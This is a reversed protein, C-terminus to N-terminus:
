FAPRHLCSSPLRLFLTAAYLLSRPLSSSPLLAVPSPCISSFVWAVARGIRGAENDQCRERGLGGGRTERAQKQVAQTRDAWEMVEGM